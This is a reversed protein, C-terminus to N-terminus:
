KKHRSFSTSEYAGKFGSLVYAKRIAKYFPAPVIFVGNYNNLNLVSMPYVQKRFFVKGHKTNDNDVLTFDFNGRLWGLINNLSSSVGHIIINKERIFKQIKNLVKELKVMYAKYYIVKPACDLVENIRAKVRFVDKTMVLSKVTFGNKALLYRITSGTFYHTHQHLFLAPDGENLQREANPVLFFLEGKAELNDRCFKIVANINIIHEFVNNAFILDYKHSLMTQPCAFAKLYQIGGIKQTKEISPDIGVLDTFGKNKLCRLIYGDACGIEVASKYNKLDWSDFLSKAREKGWNGKGLPTSAQARKSLYMKNLMSNLRNSVPQYVHGCDICQKIVCKYKIKKETSDDGINTWMIISDKNLIEVARISGCLYCVTHSKNKEERNRNNSKKHM